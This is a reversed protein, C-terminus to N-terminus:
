HDFSVPNVVHACYLVSVPLHEWGENSRYGRLIHGLIPSANLSLLRYKEDLPDLRSQLSCKKNRRRLNLPPHEITSRHFPRTCADVSQRSLSPLPPGSCGLRISTSMPPLTHSHEILILHRNSLKYNYDRLFNIPILVM